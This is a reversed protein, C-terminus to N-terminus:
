AYAKLVLEPGSRKLVHSMFRDDKLWLEQEDAALIVPMRDHIRAVSPVAATTLICYAEFPNGSADKFINTMGAMYLMSSEPLRLLYKDKKKKGEVHAWEYFGTSPIVCRREMISKRFMPRELATEARANIIQGKGNWKPFGWRAPKAAIRNEEMGMVPALNTPFIEGTKLANMSSKGFRKGVEAIIEIMEMIEEETFVTYRGCM